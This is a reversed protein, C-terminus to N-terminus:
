RKVAIVDFVTPLHMFADPDDGAESWAAEFAKRDETSIYGMEVLRPVFTAFFTEPWAWITSGPRAIRNNANLFTVELGHKRCLAPIRAVIDPDGGRDRFSTGIARVVRAFAERRPALAMAEYNFYDQIAFSGGPKLLGAVGRILSEPDPVFCLVWRCYALDVSGARDALLAELRQADGLVREVNKLHQGQTRDHLHKLFLPSEDVAIVHGRAGVIEALDITAHGPGCGVDLVTHGPLIGAREWLSHASASWLRHQLGLRASESDGTGLVYEDPTASPPRSQTRSPM